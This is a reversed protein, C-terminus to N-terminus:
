RGAEAKERREERAILEALAEKERLKDLIFSRRSFVGHFALGIGWGALVWPVWLESPNAWLNIFCLFANVIIYSTLHALFGRRAERVEMERWADKYEEVSIEESM